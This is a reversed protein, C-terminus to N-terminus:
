GGRDTENVCIRDAARKTAEQVLVAVAVGAAGGGAAHALPTGSGGAAVSGTSLGVTAGPSDPPIGAEAADVTDLGRAVQRTLALTTSPLNKDKM